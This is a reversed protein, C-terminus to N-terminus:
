IHYIDFLYAAHRRRLRTMADNKYHCCADAYHPMMAYRSPMM